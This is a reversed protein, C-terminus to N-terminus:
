QKKKYATRLENISVTRNKNRHVMSHCNSCLPVLDKIPDLKYEGGRQSIPVIHHVEIFGEGLEGYTSEFDFGCVACKCGNAEICKKKAKINREYRISTQDTEKGEVFEDEAQSYILNIDGIDVCEKFARYEIYYELSRCTLYHSTMLEEDQHINRAFEILQEISYEPSYLSSFSYDFRSRILAPLKNEAADILDGLFKQKKGKEVRVFTRFETHILKQEETM